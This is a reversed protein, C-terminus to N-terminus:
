LGLWMGLLVETMAGERVVHPLALYDSFLLYAKGMKM